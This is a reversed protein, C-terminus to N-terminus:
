GRWYPIEFLASATGWVVCVGGGGGLGLLVGFGLGVCGWVWGLFCCCGWWVGWGLFWGVLKEVEEEEPAHNESTSDKEQTNGKRGGNTGTRRGTTHQHSQRRCYFDLVRVTAGLDPPRVPPKRGGKWELCGFRL